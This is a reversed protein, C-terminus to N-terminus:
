GHAAERGIQAAAGAWAFVSSMPLSAGWAEGRRIRCVHTFHIGEREAIVKSPELSARIEQAKEATMVTSCARKGARIRARHEISLEPRLLKFLESRSGWRRHALNGCSTNGCMPILQRKTTPRTGHRVYQLAFGMSMPGLGPLWVRASGSHYAGGWVWCGTIDDIRCRLKLDEITRIGDQRTRRAPPTAMHAATGPIPQPKVDEIRAVVTLPEAKQAAQGPTINPARSM